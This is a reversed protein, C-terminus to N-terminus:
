LITLIANLKAMLSSMDTTLSITVMLDKGNTKTKKIFTDLLSKFERISHKDTAMSIVDIWELFFEPNLGNVVVFTCLMFRDWHGVNRSWFLELIKKPWQESPGIIDCIDDFLIYAYDPYESNTVDSM